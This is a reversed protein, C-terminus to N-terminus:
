KKNNFMTASQSSCQLGKKMSLNAVGIHDVGLQDATNGTDMRSRITPVHTASPGGHRPSQSVDQPLVAGQGSLAQRETAGSLSSASTSPTFPLIGGFLCHQVVPFKGLVEGFYMKTLGQNIKKWNPLQSISHLMPSHEFFPGRKMKNVFAVASFLLNTSRQENIVKEDAIGVPAVGDATLNNPNALQAAGWLFPLFQYDDLGWVGKSGAPELWYTSQVARMLELYGELVLEGVSHMDNPTLM